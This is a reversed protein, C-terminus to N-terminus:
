KELTYFYKTSMIGTHGSYRKISDNSEFITDICAKLIIKYARKRVVPVERRAEWKEARSVGGGRESRVSPVM